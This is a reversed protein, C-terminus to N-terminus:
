KLDNYKNYLSTLATISNTNIFICPSDTWIEHSLWVGNVFYEYRIVEFENNVPDFLDDLIDLISINSNAIKTKIIYEGIEPSAAKTYELYIHLIATAFEKDSLIEDIEKFVKMIVSKNGAIFMNKFKNLFSDENAKISNLVEYVESPVSSSTIIKNILNKNKVFNYFFALFVIISYDADAASEVSTKSALYNFAFWVDEDPTVVVKATNPPIVIYITGNSREKYDLYKAAIYYDNICIVSKNRKPLNRWSPLIDSILTSYVNLTGKSIRKGPTYLFFNANKNSSARYLVSKDKDNPEFYINNKDEFKLLASVVKKIGMSYEPMNLLDDLTLKRKNYPKSGVAELVTNINNLVNNVM